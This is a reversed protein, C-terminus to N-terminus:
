KPFIQGLSNDHPTQGISLETDHAGCNQGADIFELFADAYWDRHVSVFERVVCSSRCHDHVYLMWARKLEHPLSARQLVIHELFNAMMEACCLVKSREPSDSQLRENEFFYGYLAPEGAFYKIIDISQSSLRDSVNAQGAIAVAILQRWIYFASVVGLLVAVGQFRLTAIGYVNSSLTM